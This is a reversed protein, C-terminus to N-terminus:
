GLKVNDAEGVVKVTSCPDNPEVVRVMLGAFPNVPLTVSLAEPSGLPTVGANPVLGVVDLLLRVRVADPEAAVPVNVTVMVPVDPLRLLLVVTVSVTFGAPSYVSEAEGVLRLMARLAFPVLVMVTLGSFPKLALVPREALPKGLPTVAANLGPLVVLVLVSVSVALLVADSPVTVRVMVPLDPANDCLAVKESVTVDGGFKAREAEGLESLTARPLWIEEVIVTVGCFAKAALTLKDAEPRGRPTVADKLGLAVVAVLVSVRDAVLLADIPVNEITIWPAEPLKVWM